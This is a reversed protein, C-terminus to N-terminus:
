GGDSKMYGGDATRLCAAQQQSTVKCAGDTGDDGDRYRLCRGGSTPGCTTDCADIHASKDSNYSGGDKGITIVNTHTSNVFVLANIIGYFFIYCLKQKTYM